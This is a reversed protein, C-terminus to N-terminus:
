PVRQEREEKEAPQKRAAYRPHGEDAHTTEDEQSGVLLDAASQQLPVDEGATRLGSGTCPSVAPFADGSTAGQLGGRTGGRQRAGNAGRSALFVQHQLTSDDVPRM